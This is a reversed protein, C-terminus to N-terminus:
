RHQCRSSLYPHKFRCKGKGRVRQLVYRSAVSSIFWLVLCTDAPSVIAHFCCLSLPSHITNMTLFLRITQHMVRTNTIFFNLTTMTYRVNRPNVEATCESRCNNDHLDSCKMVDSLNVKVCSVTTRRSTTPRTNTTDSSSDGERSCLCCLCSQHM